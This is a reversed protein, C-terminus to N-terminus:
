GRECAPGVLPQRADVTQRPFKGRVSVQVQILLNGQAVASVVENSYHGDLLDEGPINFLERVRNETGPVGTMREDGFHM